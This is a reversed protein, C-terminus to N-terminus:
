YACQYGGLTCDSGGSDRCSNVAAKKVTDAVPGWAAGFVGASDRAVAVCNAEKGFWKKCTHGDKSYKKCTSKATADADRQTLAGSAWGAGSEASTYVSVYYAPMPNSSSLSPSVNQSNSSSNNVLNNSDPTDNSSTTRVIIILVLIFAAAGLLIEYTSFLKVKKPEELQNSTSTHAIEDVLASKNAEKFLAEARFKIYLARAKSEDSDAMSYSKAWVAENKATNLELAAEEWYKDEFQDNSLKPTSPSAKPTVNENVLQSKFYQLLAYNVIINIVCLVLVGIASMGVLRDIGSSKNLLMYIGVATAFANFWLLTQQLMVLNTNNRKYMLWATYGWVWVGFGYSKSGNVFGAIIVLFIM